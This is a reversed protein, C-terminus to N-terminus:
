LVARSMPADLGRSKLSHQQQLTPSAGSGAMRLEGVFLTYGEWGQRSFFTLFNYFLFAFLLIDIIYIRQSADIRRGLRRARIILLEASLTQITHTLSFFLFFFLPSINARCPVQHIL